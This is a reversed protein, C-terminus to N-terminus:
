GSAPSRLDYGLGRTMVEDVARRMTDMDEEEDLQHGGGKRLVLSVDDSELCDLLKLATGYEVEPDSLGHILRVPVDVKLSNPGGRLLLNERGDKILSNSIPYVENGWQIDKIGKGEIESKDEESLNKWLLDETFDPDCAMGVLGSVVDPRKIALLVAIWSGVGSGVLTYSGENSDLLEEADSVWKTLCADIFNGTSRGVGYYDACLFHYNQRRCHQLLNSSKASNKARHLCPLYLVRNNSPTPPSYFDYTLTDNTKTTIFNNRDVDSRTASSLSTSTPSLPSLKSVLNFSTTSTLLLFTPLLTRLLCQTLSKM